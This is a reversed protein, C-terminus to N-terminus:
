FLRFNVAVTITVPVPRGDKRGPKFRYMEVADLAKQDLGMGLPQIVRPNRPYGHADVILSILCVGQFKNRRAEDSFEAEPSVIPIPNTVGGIGPTLALHLIDRLDSNDM